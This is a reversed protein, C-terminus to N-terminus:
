VHHFLCNWDHAKETKENQVLQQQKKKENLTCWNMLYRNLSNIIIWNIRTLQEELNVFDNIVSIKSFHVTQQFPNEWCKLERLPFFIYTCHKQNYNKINTLTICRLRLDLTHTTLVIFSVFSSSSFVTSM